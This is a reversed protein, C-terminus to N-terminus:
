SRAWASSAARASISPQGNRAIGRSLRLIYGDRVVSDDVRNAITRNHVLFYDADKALKALAIGTDTIMPYGPMNASTMILLPHVLYSFLLHHLGTYPLM